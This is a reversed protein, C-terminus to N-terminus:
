PLSSVRAHLIRDGAAVRDWGPGAEGVFAYEGDLHPYRGLTVFLQSSGTDRGSLAVGVTNPGFAIPSTECRLPPQDDGGYGDGGPDGFQAVFGPVVRHVVIGDYFGREALGLVRAVAVPAFRPDLQITLPGADTELTLVSRSEGAGPLTASESPKFEDCRRAEEGLLRLAKQAHDRLTPNDSSCALNADDKLSLIQLAGIADLLASQVEVSHRAAAAAYAAKLAQIVSADPRPAAHADGSDDFTRAAREPYSALLHAASAVIGLAKANLAEALLAYAEGLEPHDALRELAAERVLVDEGRAKALFAKKRAGRLRERSLVRLVFLERARSQPAPDCTLLHGSQYNSGALLAAAACRVHVKRRTLTASDHEGLALESLARLKSPEAQIPPTLADLLASLPGYEASQLTDDSPLSALTAAFAKWLFKQGPEGQMALERVAQARLGPALEHQVAFAGLAERGLDGTRGLARLAFEQGPARAALLRLALAHTREASSANLTALRTLPFLANQLPEQARDAAQLLAVLTADELKGSHAALRGLALAAAEARPKPGLLWARLTSEAEPSACRGAADAIAEVPSALLPPRADNGGLSAARAVLARVIKPERGRCAYGLGYAAWTNVEPDEDSLALLLSEAAHADAIRSLARAASRRVNVDRSSLADSFIPGTERRQEAVAILQRQHNVASAALAPPAPQAHPDTRPDHCATLLVLWGFHKSCRM